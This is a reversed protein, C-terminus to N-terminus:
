SLLSTFGKQVLWLVLVYFVVHYFGLAALVMAVASIIDAISAINKIYFLAKVLLYAALIFAAIKGINWKLLLLIIGAALDLLGFSKVLM